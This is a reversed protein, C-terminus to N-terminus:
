RTIIGQAARADWGILAGLDPKSDWVAEEPPLEEIKLTKAQVSSLKSLKPDMATETM